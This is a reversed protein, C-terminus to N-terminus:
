RSCQHMVVADFNTDINLLMGVSQGVELKLQHVLNTLFYATWISGISECRMVLTDILDKTSQVFQAIFLGNSSCSQLAWINFTHERIIWRELKSVLNVFKCLFIANLQM